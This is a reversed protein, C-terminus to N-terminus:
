ERMKFDVDGYRSNVRINGASTKGFSGICTKSNNSKEVTKYHVESDNWDLDAYSVKIDFDFGMSVPIRLDIDSFSGDIDFSRFGKGNTGLDVSGYKAKVRASQLNRVELESFSSEITLNAGDAIELNSYSVKIEGGKCYAIRGNGFSVKVYNDTHNLRETKLSGYSSQLDARGNFDAVYTDGFSNKVRLPNNRPMNVTYNIEFSQKNGGWNGMNDMQTKVLIESGNSENVLISIRDLMDQARSDSSARAIMVVDVTAEPKDWTNIHVKGFKNEIALQDSASLKFSKSFKKTREENLGSRQSDSRHSRYSLERSADRTADAVERGTRSVEQGVDEWLDPDNLADELRGAAIKLDVELRQGFNQFAHQLNEGIEDWDKDPYHRDPTKKTEQKKQQAYTHTCVLALFIVVFWRNVIRKMCKM